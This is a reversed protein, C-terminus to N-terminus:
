LHAAILVLTPRLRKGGSALTYKVPDYLTSASAPYSLQSIGEQILNNLEVQTKM